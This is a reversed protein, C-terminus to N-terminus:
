TSCERLPAPLVPPSSVLDESPLAIATVLLALLLLMAKIM